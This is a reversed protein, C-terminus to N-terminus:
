VLSLRYHNQQDKWLKFRIVDVNSFQCDNIGKRRIRVYRTAPGVTKTNNHSYVWEDDESHKISISFTDEDVENANITYVKVVRYRYRVRTLKEKTRSLECITIEDGAKLKGPGYIRVNLNVTDGPDFDPYQHEQYLPNSLSAVRISPLCDDITRDRIADVENSLEEVKEVLGPMDGYIQSLVDSLHETQRLNTLITDLQMGGITTNSPLTASATVVLTNSHSFNTAAAEDGVYLKGLIVPRDRKNDLFGVVVCDGVRYSNLNGPDYGLNAEFYSGSTDHLDANTGAKEFIPLRVEFLNEGPENVKTIYGLTIM